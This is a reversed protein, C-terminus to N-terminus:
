LNKQNGLIQTFIHSAKADIARRVGIERIRETISALM